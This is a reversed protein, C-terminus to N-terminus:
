AGVTAARVREIGSAAGVTNQAPVSKWANSLSAAYEQWAQDRAAQIADPDRESPSSSSHAPEAVADTQRSDTLRRPAANRWQDSLSRVWADRAEISPRRITMLKDGTEELSEIEDPDNDPDDQDRSKRKADYAAIQKDTLPRVWYGPRHGASDCLMAPVRVSQKDDVVYDDEFHCADRKHKNM